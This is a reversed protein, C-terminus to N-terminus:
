RGLGNLIKCNSCETIDDRFNYFEAVFESKNSEYGACIDNTHYVNMESQKVSPQLISKHKTHIFRTAPITPM